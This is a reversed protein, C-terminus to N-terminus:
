ENEGGLRFGKRILLVSIVGIFLLVVGAANARGFNSENFATHYIFFPLNFTANGPGGKTTMMITDFRQLMSTAGLVVCTGIINRMLPLIIYINLQFETTGDVVAAELISPDISLIETLVLLTVTAAYFLWTLTVTMFATRVDRFWHMQFSANGTIMRILGNIVGFGPDMICVFMMALAASSIINPIMYVTRVFKWYFPRRALQLAVLVGVVVHVTSQLLIWILTNILSQTFNRSETFLFRFNELGIFVPDKGILWTTFSTVILQILPVLFVVCFLALAPLLFLLINLTKTKRLIM